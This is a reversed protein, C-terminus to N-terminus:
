YSVWTDIQDLRAWSGLSHPLTVPGSGSGFFLGHHLPFTFIDHLLVIRFFVLSDGDLFARAFTPPFVFLGAEPETGELPVPVGARSRGLLFLLELHWLHAAGHSDATYQNNNGLSLSSSHIM